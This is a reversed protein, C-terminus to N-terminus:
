IQHEGTALLATQQDEEQIIYARINQCEKLNKEFTPSVDKLSCLQSNIFPYHAMNQGRRM